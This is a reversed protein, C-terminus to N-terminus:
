VNLFNHGCVFPTHWSFKAIHPIYFKVFFICLAFSVGGRIKILLVSYSIDKHIALAM